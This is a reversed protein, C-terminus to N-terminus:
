GARLADKEIARPHTGSQTRTPMPASHLPGARDVRSAARVIALLERRSRVLNWALLAASTWTLLARPGQALALVGAIVLWHLLRMLEAGSKPWGADTLRYIFYQVWRSLAHAALAAAGIPTVAVFPVFAATRAVQLPLYLWARTRKDARNYAHFWALTAVLIAVWAGLRVYSFPRPWDLVRLGLAGAGLAWVWPLFRPTPVPSKRFASSLVPEDEFRAAVADNDVYGREYICWFSLCLLALGGVHLAPHPALALSALVWFAFDEQVIGRLIYRTGPRKIRTIYRGPLYSHSLAPVYAAEPWVVRLPCACRALLAEDQLSDTIVLSEAVCAEGLAAIALADKGDRREAWSFLRSAVLPWAGAGISAVLPKVIFRFGNTVVYTPGKRDRLAGLLDGNTHRAALGPARLRWMLTTWPFLLAIVQVRWVDRTAAGGTLVWPRAVDLLRLVLVGLISPRVSDIFDETSSRLYLTEDLDVLVAGPHVRVRELSSEIEAPRLDVPDPKTRLTMGSRVM